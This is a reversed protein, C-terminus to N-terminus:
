SIPNFERAQQLSTMRTKNMKERVNLYRKTKPLLGIFLCIKNIHKFACYFRENLFNKFITIIIVMCYLAM